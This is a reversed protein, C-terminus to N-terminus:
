WRQFKHRAVFGQTYVMYQTFGKCQMPGQSVLLMDTFSRSHHLKLSSGPPSPRALRLPAGGSSCHRRWNFRLLTTDFLGLTSARFIGVKAFYFQNCRLTIMKLIQKQLPASLLKEFLSKWFKGRQLIVIPFRPASGWPAPSRHPAPLLAM